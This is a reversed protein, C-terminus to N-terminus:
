ASFLCGALLLLALVLLTLWPYYWVAISIAVLALLVGTDM